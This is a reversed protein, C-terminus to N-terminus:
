NVNNKTQLLLLFKITYCAMCARIHTHTHTHLIILKVKEQVEGTSPTHPWRWAGAAKARTFLRSVGLHNEPGIHINAFIQGGGV